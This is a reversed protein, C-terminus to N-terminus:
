KIKNQEFTMMLISMIQQKEEVIIKSVKDANRFVWLENYADNNNFGTDVIQILDENYWATEQCDDKRVIQKWRMQDITVENRLSNLDNVSSFNRVLILYSRM